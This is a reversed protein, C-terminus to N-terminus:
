HPTSLLNGSLIPSILISRNAMENVGSFPHEKVDVRISTAEGM